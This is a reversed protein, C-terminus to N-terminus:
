TLFVMLQARAATPSYPGARIPQDAGAVVPKSPLEASRTVPLVALLPAAAIALTRDVTASSLRDVFRVEFCDNLPSVSAGREGDVHQHACACTEMVEGMM